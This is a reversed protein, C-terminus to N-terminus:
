SVQMHKALERWVREQNESFREVIEKVFELSLTGCELSRTIEEAAEASNKHEVRWLLNRVIRELEKFDNWKMRSQTMSSGHAELERNIISIYVKLDCVDADAYGANEFVEIETVLEPDIGEQAMKLIREKKKELDHGIKTYAVDENSDYLFGDQRYKECFRRRYEDYGREGSIGSDHMAWVAEDRPIVVRHGRKRFEMCQSIDYFHFQDFIQEDWAVDYQTMMLMGDIAEVDIVSADEIGLDKMHVMVSGNHVLVNGCDWSQAAKANRPLKRAGVTGIMGITDDKFIELMDYLLREKLLYVDQHLYIKYKADSANMGANYASTMSSAERIAIVDTEFGEPVQLQQMYYLCEELYIDDNCCIIFAIKNEM